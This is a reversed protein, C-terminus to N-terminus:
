PFMRPKGNTGCGAPTTRFFYDAEEAIETNTV